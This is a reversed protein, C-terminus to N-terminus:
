NFNIIVMEIYRDLMQIPCLCRDTRMDTNSDTHQIYYVTCNVHIAFDITVKNQNRFVFIIIKWRSSWKVDIAFKTLLINAININAIAWPSITTVCVNAVVILHRETKMWKRNHMSVCLCLKVGNEENEFCSVFTPENENTKFGGDVLWEDFDSSEVVFIM